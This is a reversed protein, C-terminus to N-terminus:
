WEDHSFMRGRLCHTSVVSVPNEGELQSQILPLFIPEWGLLMVRLNGLCLGWMVDVM